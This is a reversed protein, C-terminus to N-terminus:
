SVFDTQHDIENFNYKKKDKHNKKKKKIAQQLKTKCFYKKGTTQSTFIDMLLGDAIYEKLVWAQWGTNQSNAFLVVM